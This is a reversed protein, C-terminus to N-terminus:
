GCYADAALARRARPAAREGLRFRCISPAAAFHLLQVELVWEVATLILLGGDVALMPRQRLRAGSLWETM